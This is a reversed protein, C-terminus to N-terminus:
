LAGRVIIGVGALIAVCGVSRAIWAPHALQKEAAIILGIVAMMPINMVGVILQMAMLGWCCAVCFAGHHLGVRVAGRWGPTLYRELIELPSRCHTLCAAKWPTFQYAGGIVLGVGGLVPVTRSLPESTMAAVAVLRGGAYALGGFAAWAAFYAAGMLWPLMAVRPEGRFATVRQYMRLMPWTSPLMMAAWMATFMAAAAAGSQGPMGMWVMSMTWGGPMAMGGAMGNTMWLTVGACVAYFGVGAAYSRRELTDATVAM